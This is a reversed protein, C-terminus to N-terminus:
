QVGPPKVFSIYHVLRNVVSQASGSFQHQWYTGERDIQQWAQVVAPSVGLTLASGTDFSGLDNAVKLTVTGSGSVSSELTVSVRNSGSLDYAGSSWSWSVASGNSLTTGGDTVETDFATFSLKKASDGFYLGFATNGSRPIPCMGTATLSWVMWADLIPDYVLTTHTSTDTIYLRREYYVLVTLASSSTAALFMTPLGPYTGTTSQLWPELPRSMYQPAGGNTLYVGTRDAFYVGEEGAVAAGPKGCGHGAVVARYNFIPEGDADVSTGTFVFYKTQKFVIVYDRWTVVAQIAEGDGPHLQVFNNAGFTTPAGPDSFAVTNSDAAVLRNDNPTVALHTAPFGIAATGWTTGTLTRLTTSSDGMFLQTNGPTGFRAFGNNSSPYTAVTSLSTGNSADFQRTTTTTETVAVIYEANTADKYFAMPGLDSIQATSRTIYGARGRVRGLRDLDANSMAVASEAGVETPDQVLNLGAFRNVPFSQTAM